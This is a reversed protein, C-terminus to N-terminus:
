DEDELLDLVPTSAGLVLNDLAERVSSGLLRVADGVAVVTGDVGILLVYLDSYARGLPFWSKNAIVPSIGVIEDEDECTMPDTNFRERWLDVGPGEQRVDLGGFESLAANAAESFTFGGPKELRM